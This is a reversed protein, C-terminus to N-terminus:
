QPPIQYFLKLNPGFTVAITRRVQDTLRETFRKEFRALIESVGFVVPISAALDDAEFTLRQRHVAVLIL